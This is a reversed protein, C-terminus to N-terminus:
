LTLSLGHRGASQVTTTETLPIMDSIHGTILTYQSYLLCSLPTEQAFIIAAVSVLIYLAQQMRIHFDFNATSLGHNRLLLLMKNM